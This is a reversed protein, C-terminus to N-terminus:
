RKTRSIQQEVTRKITEINCRFFERNNEIRFPALAAHVDTEIEEANAIKWYSTVVFASAVGTASSLEQARSHASHRTWGIKYVEDQMTACRMIYLEPTLDDSTVDSSNEADVVKSAELLNNLTTRASALTDKVYIVKEYPMDNRWESSRKIWTKGMIPNGEDDRGQCGIQLRRWHGETEISFHPLKVETIANRSAYNIPEISKVYQYKAILGQGGKKSKRALYRKTEAPASVRSEFYRPLHLFGEALNWLPNAISMKELTGKFAEDRFDVSVDGYVEPDDCHGRFTHETESFLIRTLHKCKKLNFEGAIITRWARETGELPIPRGSSPGIREIMDALFKRKWTPSNHFNETMDWSEIQEWEEHTFIEGSLMYWHISNNIRVMSFGSIVFERKQADFVTTEFIDGNTTFHFVVDQPLHALSSVDSLDFESCTLFDIFDGLEFLHDTEKKIELYPAFSKPILRAFCFPEFYNFSTPQNNTGSHAFRDIYEIVMSRLLTDVPLKAGGELTSKIIERYKKAIKAGEKKLLRRENRPLNDLIEHKGNKDLLLRHDM